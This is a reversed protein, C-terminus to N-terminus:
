GELPKKCRALAVADLVRGCVWLAQPWLLQGFFEWIHKTAPNAKSWLLLAILDWLTPCSCSSAIKYSCFANEMLHGWAWMAGPHKQLLSYLGKVIGQSGVSLSEHLYGAGKVYCNGVFTEESSLAQTGVQLLGIAISLANHKAAAAMQRSTSVLLLLLMFASSNMCHTGMGSKSGAGNYM